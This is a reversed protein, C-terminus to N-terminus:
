GELTNIFGTFLEYSNENWNNEKYIEFKNLLCFPEIESYKDKIFQENKVLVLEELQKRISEPIEVIGEDEFQIRELGEPVTEELFKELKEVIPNFLLITTDKNTKIFDKIATLKSEETASVKIEDLYESLYGVEFIDEFFMVGYDSMMLEFEKGSDEIKMEIYKNLMEESTELDKFGEILNM